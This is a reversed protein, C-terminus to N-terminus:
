SFAYPKYVGSASIFLGAMLIYKYVELWLGVVLKDFRSYKFQLFDLVCLLDSKFNSVGM